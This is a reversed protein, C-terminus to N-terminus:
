PRLIALLQTRAAGADASGGSRKMVEGMLRGIAADKGQRVDQAAQPQADIAEQAWVALVNEDNVQLLGESGALAEANQDSGCLLAFLTTAASSGISNNKRLVIIGALQEASIGLEDVDCGQENALKAGANLIWKASESGDNSESVCAEFFHCLSPESILASADKDSLKYESVYRM